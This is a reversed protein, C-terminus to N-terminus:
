VATIPAGLWIALDDGARGHWRPGQTGTVVYLLL